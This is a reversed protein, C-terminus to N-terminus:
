LVTDWYWDKARKSNLIIIYLEVGAAAAVGNGMLSVACKM